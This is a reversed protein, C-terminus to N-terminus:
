TVSVFIINMIFLQLYSLFIKLMLEKQDCANTNMNIFTCIVMYM